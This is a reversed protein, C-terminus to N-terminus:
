VKLIQNLLTSKGVNPLGMIAMKLLSGPGGGEYTVEEGEEQEGDEEADDTGDDDDDDYEGELGYGAAAVPDGYTERLQASIDDIRPQLAVYLDTIGELTTASLAVPEGYGLRLTEAVTDDM